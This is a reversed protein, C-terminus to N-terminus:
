RILDDREMTMAVRFGVDDYRLEPHNRVRNASRLNQPNLYWSGGRLVRLTADGGQWVSGDEPADRYNEHWNDACWEWVNGHMDHLGFGNAPFSGVKSTQNAGFQAQDKSIADGFWHTVTTGARCCYEWEAESLLRYTQSTKKSIWTVYAQADDWSVDIVPRRGRGWCYDKPRRPELGTIEKWDKDAQAFDWEEFTVPYRGVSFEKPITVEHQPGENDYREPEDEPSGMLFIGSPIILMEPFINKM